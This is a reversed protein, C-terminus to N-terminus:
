FRPLHSIKVRGLVNQGLHLVSMDVAIVATMSRTL